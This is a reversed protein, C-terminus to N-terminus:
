NYIVNCIINKFQWYKPNFTFVGSPDHLVHLYLCLQLILCVFIVFGGVLFNFWAGDYADCGNRYAKVIIIWKLVYIVSEWITEWKSNMKSAYILDVNLGLCFPRWKRSSMKLYMKKQSFTYIELLVESFNSIGSNTWITAQRRGPSLGDDSGIITLKSVCIHTVRGWHTLSLCPQAIGARTLNSIFNNLRHGVMECVINGYTNEHIFCKTNQNFVKQRKNRITWNLTLRCENLFHCAMIQVLASRIWLCMYAASLLSLKFNILAELTTRTYLLKFGCSNRVLWYM